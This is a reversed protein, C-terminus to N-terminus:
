KKLKKLYKVPTNEYDEKSTYYLFGNELREIMSTIFSSDIWNKSFPEHYYKSYHENPPYYRYFLGLNPDDLVKKLTEINEILKM